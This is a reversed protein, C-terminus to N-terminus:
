LIFEVQKFYYSDERGSECDAILIPGKPDVGRIVGRFEAGTEHVRFPYPRGDFRWMKKQFDGHLRNRGEPTLAQQLRNELMAGVRAAVHSIERRISDVMAMSVPNPADSVFRTQNVNLGVGIRSHEIHDPTISHEILIGAIKGDAVYIDNPWKVRADIGESELFDSMALATAESVAFQDRPHLGSPKWLLTFTLNSGPESEWANGRQGRGATQSTAMVMTLDDLEGAHASVYSNTSDVEELVIFKM